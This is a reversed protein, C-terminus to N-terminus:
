EGRLEAFTKNAFEYDVRNKLEVNFELNDVLGVRTFNSSDTIVRGVDREGETFTMIYLKAHINQSPYARIELKKSRIWEIFKVVGEEVEQKDESDEMEKEVLGSYEQQTEAHSLQM